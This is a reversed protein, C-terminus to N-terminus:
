CAQDQTQCLLTAPIFLLCFVPSLITPLGASDLLLRKDGMQTSIGPFAVMAPLPSEPLGNTLSLCQCRGRGLMMRKTRFTWEIFQTESRIIESFLEGSGLTFSGVM